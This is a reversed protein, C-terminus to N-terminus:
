QNSFYTNLQSTKQEIIHPLTQPVVATLFKNFSLQPRHLLPPHQKSGAPMYMEFILYKQPSRITKM